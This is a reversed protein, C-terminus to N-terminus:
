CCRIIDLLIVQSSHFIQKKSNKEEEPFNKSKDKEEVKTTESQTANPCLGSSASSAILVGLHCHPLHM